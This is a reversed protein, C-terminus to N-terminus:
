LYRALALSIQTPTVSDPVSLYVVPVYDGIQDTFREPHETRLQLEFKRAIMKVLTSKGVTAPGDILLRPPRRCPRIRQSAATRPDRGRVTAGPTDLGPRARQPPPRPGRRVRTTRHREDGPLAGDHRTGAPTATRLGPLRALGGQHAARGARPANLSGRDIRAKRDM